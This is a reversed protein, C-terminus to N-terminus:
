NDSPDFNEDIKYQQSIEGTLRLLDYHTQLLDYLRDYYNLVAQEYSLKIANLNFVNILGLNYKEKGLNWLKSANKLREVALNKVKLRTNYLEFNSRLQHSLNLKMQEIEIGALEQQLEAIQVNRKRNMGQFLDYRLNVTANHSWSNTNASFGQDGYLRFYGVAPTTSLNLTIVPYYASKKASVELEKLEYNIFQNKLSVNDSMMRTQLEEYTIVPVSFNLSDTLNYKVGVDEAMIMNMNRMANNYSLEQLLLNTSDTYIQNEFELMDLSTSIGMESKIEFYDREKRAYDLVETLVDMKRQQVVASYYALIVDHITSEIVIIANGRTQAQLTEFREKNIKIAFGSFVTWQMQLSAQLNDNLLVGPFFTAPNNTNDQLATNNTVNLSFTPILGAQGWSNQLKAAQYNGAILQIDFNKELAKKIAGMVTLDEQAYLSGTMFLIILLLYKKM